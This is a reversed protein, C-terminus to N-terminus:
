SLSPVAAVSPQAPKRRLVQAAMTVLLLALTAIRMAPLSAASVLYGVTPLWLVVKGVTDTARVRWVDETNNADGETRLALGQDDQEVQVVRHTVLNNADGDAAFTVIDGVHASTPSMPQVFVVSGRPVTPEMSSGAVVLSRAGFLAPLVTILTVAMALLLAAAQLTMAGVNLWRRSRRRLARKRPAAEPQAIASEATLAPVVTEVIEQSEVAPVVAEAVAEAAVVAVSPEAEAEPAVATFGPEPVVEPAVAAVVPESVVEPAVVAIVPEVIVRPAVVPVVPGSMVEPAVAAVTAEVGAQAAVAPAFAEAVAEAAVVAVTAEVIRQPAFVAVSPEAEAEPAVATFVPEPVVEPAVAAVPAEVVEQAAVVPAVTEAAAEPAVPAAVPELVVEPAVRIPEPSSGSAEAPAPREQIRLRGRAAAVAVPTGFNASTSEELVHWREDSVEEGREVLEVFQAFAHTGDALAAAEPHVKPPASDHIAQGLVQARAQVEQLPEFSANAHCVLGVRELVGLASRRDGADAVGRVLYLLENLSTIRAPQEHSAGLEDAALLADNLLVNFAERSAAVEVLLSADPISGSGVDQAARALAQGLFEYTEVLRELRRLLDDCPPISPPM